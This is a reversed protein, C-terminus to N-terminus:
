KNTFIPASTTGGSTITCGESNIYIYSDSYPKPVVAKFDTSFEFGSGWVWIDPRNKLYVTTIHLRFDFKLKDLNRDMDDLTKATSADEPSLIVVRANQAYGIGVVLM